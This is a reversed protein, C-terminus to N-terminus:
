TLPVVLFHPYFGNSDYTCEKKKDAHNYRKEDVGKSESFIMRCKYFVDDQM